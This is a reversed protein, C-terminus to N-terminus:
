VKPSKCNIFFDMGTKYMDCVPKFSLITKYETEKESYSITNSM